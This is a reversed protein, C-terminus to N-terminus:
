RSDSCGLYMYPPHQGMSLNAMLGPYEGNVEQRFRENGILLPALEPFQETTSLHNDRSPLKANLSVASVAAAGALFISVFIQLM